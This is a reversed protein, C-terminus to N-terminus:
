KLDELWQEISHLLQDETGNNHIVHDSQSEKYALPLQQQIIKEAMETSHEDRAMLRELQVKPSCSICCVHDFPYIHRSEFLLPIVVFLYPGQPKKQFGQIKQLINRYVRPHLHQELIHKQTENNFVISRLERKDLTGFTHLIFNKTEETNYLAKVEEDADILPHGLQVLYKSVMSKGCAIGGTMGIVKM